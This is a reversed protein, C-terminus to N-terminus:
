AGDDGYAGAVVTDGDVAVSYGLLDVFFGDSATLKATETVDAWGGDTPETFVYVSGEFGDAQLAGVVVTDGNVAVSYGFYDDEDPVLATLKGTETADAWGTGPKTFVYALGSDNEGGDDDDYAGVVVTDGDVAVSQGFQDVLARDSATLKATETGTVWSGAGPKAFM